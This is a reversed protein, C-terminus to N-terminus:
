DRREVLFGERWSGVEQRGAAEKELLRHSVEERNGAKIVIMEHGGFRALRKLYEEVGTKAYALAPKGAVIIQIRM